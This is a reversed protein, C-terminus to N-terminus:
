EARLAEVPDIRAARRAPLFSAATVALLLVLCSASLAIPDLPSSGVLMSSLLPGIGVVVAMGLALGAAALGWGQRVIMKVVAQSAAGLAIRVGVEHTRQAVLYAMVGYLGTMAMLLSVLGAVGLGASMMRQPETFAATERAMLSITVNPLDPDLAHVAGRLSAFAPTPDQATRVHVQMKSVTLQRYPYWFLPEPDAAFVQFRSDAVIGVVEAGDLRKGVPEQGSWFRRALTQNVIVVRPAEAHDTDAFDRGRVLPMRVLEFYGPGVIGCPLRLSQGAAIEVGELEGVGCNGLGKFPVGQALAVAEVGPVAALRSGLAEHFQRRAAEPYEGPPLEVSMVAVNQPDFGLELGSAHQISRLLLATVSLMLLSGAIQLTMLLNQPALRRPRLGGSTGTVAKLAPLVAPRSAQIAPILGFVIGTALALVVAFVTVRVDVGLDVAAAPPLDPVPLRGLALLRTLGHVLALGVAAALLTLLVSEIVLQGVLRSRSAGLTLRVALERRRHLARTLLLNAANSCGILLILAVVAMVVALMPIVGNEALVGRSARTADLRRAQGQHSWAQPHAEFLRGELAGLRAQFQAHSVGERLRGIMSVGSAAGRQALAPPATVWLDVVVPVDSALVNPPAVGVVTYPKGDVRIAEGLAAVEGGFSRQWLGHSLVAVQEGGLEEDDTFVRGLAMPIGLVDFYNASVQGAMMGRPSENGTAVAFSQLDFAVVDELAEVQERLDLYERYTASGSRWDGYYVYLKVLEHPDTVHPSGRLVLANVLSFVGIAATIGLGLSFVAVLCFVPSRLLNRSAYSLDRRLSDLVHEFLPAQRRPRRPGRPSGPVRRVETARVTTERQEAFATVIMARAERVVLRLRARWPTELTDRYLDSFATNAQASYGRGLSPVLIKLALAHLRVLLPRTSKPRAMKAM